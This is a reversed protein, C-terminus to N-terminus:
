IHMGIRLYPMTHIYVTATHSFPNLQCDTAHRPMQCKIPGLVKRNGSSTKTSPPPDYIRFVFIQTYTFVASTGSSSPNLFYFFSQLIFLIYLRPIRSLSLSRLFTISLFSMPIRSSKFNLKPGTKPILGDRHKM